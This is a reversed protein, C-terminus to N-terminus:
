NGVFSYNIKSLASNDLLYQDYSTSLTIVYLEDGYISLIDRGYGIAPKQNDGVKSSGSGIYVYDIVYTDKGKTSLYYSKEAQYFRYNLGAKISWAAVANQLTEEESDAKAVMLNNLPVKQVMVYDLGSREMMDGAKFLSQDNQYQIWSAPYKLNVSHDVQTEALKQDTHGVIYGLILALILLAWVPLVGIFAKKADLTETEVNGKKENRTSIIVLVTFVGIAVLAAPILGIIYNVKFGRRTVTDLLVQTIGNLGTALLLALPLRYLKFKEHKSVGLIYCSLGTISAHSFTEIVVLATANSLMAGGSALINEISTMAAFGLGLASGYIIGDIKEDFEKSPYISYRVTLLKIGEQIMAIFVINLLYRATQTSLGSVGPFLFSALPVYLAKQILAGLLMTKFVFSKPEPNLRDQRYFISLWLFPPIIAIIVSIVTLLTRNFDPNLIKEIVAAIFVILLLGGISIFTSLWLGLKTKSNRTEM